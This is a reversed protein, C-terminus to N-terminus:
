ISFITGVSHSLRNDPKVNDRISRIENQHGPAWSTLM